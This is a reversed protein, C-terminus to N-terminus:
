VVCNSYHCFGSDIVPGRCVSCRGRLFHKISMRRENACLYDVVAATSILLPEYEDANGSIGRVGGCELDLAGHLQIAPVTSDTLWDLTVGGGKSLELQIAILM